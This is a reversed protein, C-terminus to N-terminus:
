QPTSPTEEIELRLYRLLGSRAKESMLSWALVWRTHTGQKMPFSRQCTVGSSTLIMQLEKLTTLRSVLSTYWIFTSPSKLSERFMRKVFELEGGDCIIEGETADLMRDPHENVSDISPHFPPNCLCFAFKENEKVVGDFIRNPDEQHRLSIRSSMDNRDINAQAIALAKESIDSGVM